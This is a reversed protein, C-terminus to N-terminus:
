QMRSVRESLARAHVIFSRLLLSLSSSHLVPFLQSVSLTEADLIAFDCDLHPVTVFLMVKYVSPIPITAQKTNTLHTSTEAGFM